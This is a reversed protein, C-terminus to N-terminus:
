LGEKGIRAGGEKTHLFPCLSLLKFTTPLPFCHPDLILCNNPMLRTGHNDIDMIKKIHRKKGNLFMDKNGSEGAIAEYNQPNCASFSILTKRLFQRGL